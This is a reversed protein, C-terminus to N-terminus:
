EQARLPVKWGSSDLPCEITCWRGALSKLFSRSSQGEESISLLIDGALLEYRRRAQLNHGKALETITNVLGYFSTEEDISCFEERFIEPLFLKRLFALLPTYFPGLPTTLARQLLQSQKEEELPSGLVRGINDMVELLPMRWSCHWVFGGVDERVVVGNACARRYIFRSVELPYVGAEDNVIDHGFWFADDERPMVEKGRTVSVRLVGGAHAACRM